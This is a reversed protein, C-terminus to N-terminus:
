KAEGVLELAYATLSGVTRFPSRKQSMARENALSIEVGLDDSIRQEIISVLQVLGLSDLIAGSGFLITDPDTQVKVNGPLIENLDAIASIVAKPVTESFDM